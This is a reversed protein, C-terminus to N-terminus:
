GKEPRSHDQGNGAARQGTVGSFVQFWLQEKLGDKVHDGVGAITRPCPSNSMDSTPAWETILDPRYRVLAILWPPQGDEAAWKCWSNLDPEIIYIGGSCRSKITELIGIVGARDERRNTNIGFVVQPSIAKGDLSRELLLQMVAAQTMTSAQGMDEFVVYLPETADIV